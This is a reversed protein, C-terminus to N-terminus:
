TGERWDHKQLCAKEPIRRERGEYKEGGENETDEGELWSKLLEILKEM